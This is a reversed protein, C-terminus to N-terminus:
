YGITLETRVCCLTSACKAAEYISVLFDLSFDTSNRDTYITIIMQGTTATLSAPDCVIYDPAASSPACAGRLDIDLFPTRQTDTSTASACDTQGSKSKNFCVFAAQAPPTRV